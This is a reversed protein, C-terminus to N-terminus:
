IGALKKAMDKKNELDALQRVTMQAAAPSGGGHMCLAGLRGPGAVMSEVLRAVRLRKEASVGHTGRYYKEVLPGIKPNRLDLESPMCSIMGGGIDEAIRQIDYPL